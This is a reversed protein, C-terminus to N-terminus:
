PLLSALPRGARTVVVAHIGRADFRVPLAVARARREDVCFATLTRRAGDLLTRVALAAASSLAYPGPPWLAVARQEIRRIAATGLREIAPESGITASEWLIAVEDPPRGVVTLRVDSADCDAELATVARVAAEFALPASGVISRV